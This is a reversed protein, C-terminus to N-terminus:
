SSFMATVLCRILLFVGSKVCPRRLSVGLSRSIAPQAPQLELSIGHFKSSRVGLSCLLLSLSISLIKPKAYKLMVFCNQYLKQFNKESRRQAAFNTPHMKLVEALNYLDRNSLLCPPCCHCWVSFRIFVNPPRILLLALLSFSTGSATLNDVPELKSNVRRQVQQQITKAPPCPLLGPKSSVM